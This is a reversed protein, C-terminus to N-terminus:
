MEGKGQISGYGNRSYIGCGTRRSHSVQMVGIVGSAFKTVIADYVRNWERYSSGSSDSFLTKHDSELIFHEFDRPGLGLGLILLRIRAHDSISTLLWRFPVLLYFESDPDGYYKGLAAIQYPILSGLAAAFAAVHEDNKQRSCRYMLNILESKSRSDLLEVPYEQDLYSYEGVFPEPECIISSLQFMLSFNQSLEKASPRRAPTRDLMGNLLRMEVPGSYPAIDEMTTPIILPHRSTVYNRVIM